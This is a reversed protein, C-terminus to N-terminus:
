KRFYPSILALKEVFFGKCTNFYAPNSLAFDPYHSLTEASFFIVDRSPSECLTSNYSANKGRHLPLAL